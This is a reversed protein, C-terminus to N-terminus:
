LGNKKYYEDLRRVWDDCAKIYDKGEIIWEQYQGTQVALMVVGCNIKTEFMSDHAMGYAATQLKYDQIWEEKRFSRSNKFDIIADKGKYVGCLDTTGAYLGENYLAVEVGWVEDVNILGKKIIQNTMHKVFVNGTPERGELIYHELNNHVTNGYNISRTVIEKAREEGIRKKWEKLFSMDKTGSLVTTVSPVRNGAPTLYVRSGSEATERKLKKYDFKSVLKM